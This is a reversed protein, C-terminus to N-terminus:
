NGAAANATNDRFSERWAQHNKYRGLRDQMSTLNTMQLEAALNLATRACAQANTFDGLEACAMGMVDFVLPQTHGTLDNARFALLLATKGDRATANEDAALVHASLTLTQLDDPALRSAERLEAVANTDRGLKLLMSAAGLHPWALGPNLTEARSFEALAEDDKHLAALEKGAASHILADDPKERLAIRYEALSDAPHGTRALINGLNNHLQYYYGTDFKEARRYVTMAEDFRHQADLAVGLNVMAILNDNTVAIARRFLSESDRWFPLQFETVRICAALVVVSIGVTVAKPTHLSALFNDALFVIALFIGVSPLYTYRDAMSQAGVQVLGIVPILTGLFWLWGILVYPKSCRWRWALVSIIVLVSLALIAEWAPKQDLLYIACLDSPWFFKRLYTVAAIPANEIRSQLPVRGLTMVAGGSKQALITIACSAASLLFFPWKERAMSGIEENLSQTRASIGDNGRGIATRKLPWFDLLLFVFPLTVIMPKALLGLAFFTLAFWFYRRRKERAFRVYSLLSLLAFFTSLVDKREAIWAVSEVHIPHWAFLAAVMASPWLRSTLQWLLAFVLASNVAHILVNILHHAGAKLGFFECDAQHSLWTLPHWNGAYFTTFAWTVNPWNLGSKVSPNETVYDTDDYNVFQYWGAPLFVLLTMLTILLAITRPRSM